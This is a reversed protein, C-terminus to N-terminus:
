PSYGWELLSNGDTFLNKAQTIKSVVPMDLKPDSPHKGHSEAYEKSISVWDGDNVADAIKGDSKYKEYIERPIARYIKVLKEPDDKCFKIIQFAKTSGAEGFDYFRLTEYVDKPYVGNKTLDHLPAKEKGPARHKIRYDFEESAKKYERLLLHLKKM